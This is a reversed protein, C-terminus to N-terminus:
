AIEDIRDYYNGGKTYFSFANKEGALLTKLRILSFRKKENYRLNESFALFIKLPSAGYCLMPKLRNREQKVM